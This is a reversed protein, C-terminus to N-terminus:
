ESLEDVARLWEAASADSPMAWAGRPSLAVSGVRVGDPMASRKFQQGFFRRVFTRLWHLITVDDYVGEFAVRALAYIKDPAFGRRVMNYLFFDHLEYPGVLDETQQAIDGENNAPLLEPSIPTAVIDCLLDSIISCGCHDAYWRTLHQVLTKPVGANVGYMSMHDGNYTAWGLAIESLDGTGVVIAGIRNAYDMLIQTRERAQANEYTVSHDGEPLGIDEFHQECARRISIEATSIGLARMLNVANQHTRSTTGFGPMTIGVIDKRCLNLRDFADVTVLLALTSDLGGSIGIVCKSIGCSSLRQMLGARQIAFIEGSREESRPIFPHAEIPRMPREATYTPLAYQAETGCKADFAIREHALLETDIDTIVLQSTTAFREGRALMVGNEACIINGAFVEDTSSEGFGASAYICACHEHASRVRVFDCLYDYGAAVECEASPMLVIDAGTAVCKGIEIGITAGDCAITNQAEYWKDCLPIVCRGSPTAFWRAEERTPKQKVSVCIIEGRHFTVACDYLAGGSQVPVGVTAITNFQATNDILTKLEAECSTLLQRQFFLDGCTYGSLSLEPFVIWAAGQEAARGILEEIQARNAKVNGVKVTPVAAAVRIYGFNKM